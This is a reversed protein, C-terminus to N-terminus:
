KCFFLKTADYWSVATSVMVKKFTKNTSSLLNKDPMDSKKGEDYVRDNHFNVPVALTFDKEDQWVTKKIMRINSEFRERLSGARTGKRNRTGESMQTNELKRKKVMRWILSRSIGTHEVIKRPTLYRHPLEEQSCSTPKVRRDFGHKRRYLGLGGQAM